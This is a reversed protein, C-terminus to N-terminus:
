STKRSPTPLGLYRMGLQLDQWCDSKANPNRLLYAPHFTVLVMRGDQPRPHLVGRLRAIPAQTGLLQAAAHRGLAVILEPQVWAIQEELFPACSAKEEPEPDRNGPPRCKLVNCIFVQSRPLGIGHEIMRTLLQGAAGVFPRGTRDEDAGPAEGVFLIRADAAGEGPVAQTRTHALKCRTCRAAREAIDALAAAAAEPTRVPARAPVRPRAFAAPAAAAAGPSASASASAGFLDHVQAPARKPADPLARPFAHLGSDVCTELFLELAASRHADGAARDAM